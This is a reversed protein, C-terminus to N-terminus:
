SGHKPTYHIELKSVSRRAIQPPFVEYRSAPEHTNLNDMVLVIREAQPYHVEVLARIDHAFDITTRRETVKVERRGRVTM